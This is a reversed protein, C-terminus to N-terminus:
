HTIRTEGGSDLVRVQDGVQFSEGTDEQVVAITRGSDLRVTLELGPKRTVGKEVASGAVGGVVAGLVAGVVSGRGEGMTSGAVGGVVAGAATGVGSKSGGIQVNRVSVVTGMKVEYARRADAREYDGSGLGGACGASMLAVVILATGTLIKM